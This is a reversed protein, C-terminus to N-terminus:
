GVRSLEVIASEAYLNAFRPPGVFERAQGNANVTMAREVKAGLNHALTLFDTITCLHINPSEYWPVDLARTTPMRGELLIQVRIRWYGFNPFSIIVRKGARMLDELVAKPKFTAQITQSLIVFDFADAPYDKLDKDADGQIVSLGRSVCANVGAQSLEIGRADVNKEHFLYELLEGDGCGVDLVRSGPTVMGAIIQLDQRLGNSQTM